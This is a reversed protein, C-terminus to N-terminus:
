LIGRGVSYIRYIARVWENIGFVYLRDSKDPDVVLLEYQNLFGLHLERSVILVKMKKAKGNVVLARLNNIDNSSAGRLGVNKYSSDFANKTSLSHQWITM